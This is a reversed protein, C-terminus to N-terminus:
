IKEDKLNGQLWSKIVLREIKTWYKCKKIKVIESKMKVDLLKERIENVCGTEVAKEAKKFGFLSFKEKWFGREIENNRAIRLLSCSIKTKFSLHYSFSIDGLSSIYGRSSIDGGSSIYGRSSIDGGSSINGLSSIYGGSSIDGGSSIYGLSSINTGEKIEISVAAKIRGEIEIRGLGAEFILKGSCILDGKIAKSDKIITDSM